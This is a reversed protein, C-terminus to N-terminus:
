LARGGPAPSLLLLRNGHYDFIKKQFKGSALLEEAIATFDTKLGSFPSYPLLLYDYGGARFIEAAKRASFDPPLTRDWAVGATMGHKALYFHSPEVEMPAFVAPRGGADRLHEVVEWYPFCEKPFNFFTKRQYPDAALVSQYAFLALILAYAPRFGRLEFKLTSVWGALLLVLVVYSPQAHRIYGVAISAAIMVFYTAAFYLLLGVALGRRACAASAAGFLLLATVLSGCTWYVTKLNMLMLGADALNHLQLGADRIGYAASLVIFPLGAAAPIALTKLGYLWVDKKEPSRYLLFALAPLMAAMLGLPLQKYFLGAALWFSCKLFQDKDAGAAAKIFHYIATTFFLVTGAELESSLSLNFLTPFFAILLYTQRKPPSFGLFKLFRLMAIAALTMLAFQVARPAAEHVGLLLYAPFYLFKSIPPYRLITEFRGIADALGYRLDALFWLNGIAALALAAAGRGPLRLGRRYLRVAGAALLGALPLFVVPLLRIDLGVASTIRGLLWAAPGAHSQDDAGTQLPTFWLPLAAAAALLIAPWLERLEPLSLDLSVKELPSYLLGASLLVFFNLLAWQAAPPLPLNWVPYIVYSAGTLLFLAWNLKMKM